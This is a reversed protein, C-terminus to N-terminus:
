SFMGVDDMVACSESLGLGDRRIVRGFPTLLIAADFQYDGAFDDSRRDTAYGKRGPRLRLSNDPAVRGLSLAPV